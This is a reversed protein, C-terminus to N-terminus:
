WLAAQVGHTTVEPARNSDIRAVFARGAVGEIHAEDVLDLRAPVYLM